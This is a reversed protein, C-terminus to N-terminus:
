IGGQTALVMLLLTLFVGGASARLLIALRDLQKRFDGPFPATPDMQAAAKGLKMAAPRMFLMGIVLVFIVIWMAAVITRPEPDALINEFNTGFKILLYALGTILTLIGLIIGIMSIRKAHNKFIPMDKLAKANRIEPGLLMQNGVHIGVWAVGTLVHIVAAVAIEPSHIALRNGGRPPAVVRM